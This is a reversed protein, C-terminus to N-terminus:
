SRLGKLVQVSIYEATTEITLVGKKDSKRIRIGHETERIEEVLGCECGKKCYMMQGEQDSDLGGGKWVWKHKHTM